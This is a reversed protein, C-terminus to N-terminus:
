LITTDPRSSDPASLCPALFFEMPYTVTIADLLAVLDFICVVTFWGDEVRIVGIPHILGQLQWPALCSTLFHLFDSRSNVCELNGFRISYTNNGLPGKLRHSLDVQHISNARPFIKKLGVERPDRPLIYLNSMLKEGQLCRGSGGGM